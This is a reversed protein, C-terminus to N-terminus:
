PMAAWQQMFLHITSGVLAIAGLAAFGWRVKSKFVLGIGALFLAATYLVGTFGLNDGLTNAKGGEQFHKDAETQKASAEAQKTQVNEYSKEAAQLAATSTELMKDVVTDPIEGGGFKELLDDPMTDFKETGRYELPFGLATYYDEDMQVGYLYKAVYYHKETEIPNEPKADAALGAKAMEKAIMGEMLHEKARIDLSTNHSHVSLIQTVTSTAETVNSSAEGMQSSAESMISAARAMEKSALGYESAQNGGWLDSQFGAWAAGVAGLGLMVAMLLEFKDMTEEAQESM